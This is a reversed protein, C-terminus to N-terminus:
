PKPLLLRDIAPYLMMSSWCLLVCALISKEFLADSSSFEFYALKSDEVEQSRKELAKFMKAIAEQQDELCFAIITRLLELSQHESLYSWEGLQLLQALEENIENNNKLSYVLGALAKKAPQRNNKGLLMKTWFAIFAAESIGLAIATFREGRQGSKLRQQETNSSTSSALKESYYKECDAWSNYGIATGVAGGVALSLILKVISKSRSEPRDEEIAIRMSQFLAQVVKNEKVPPQQKPDVQSGHLTIASFIACLVIKKSLRYLMKM